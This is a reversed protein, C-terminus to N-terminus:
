LHRLSQLESTHEESRLLEERQQLPIVAQHATAKLLDHCHLMATRMADTQDVLGTEDLFSCLRGTYLLLPAAMEALNLVAHDRHIQAIRLTIKLTQHVAIQKQRFRPVLIALTTPFGANGVLHYIPGLPPDGQFQVIPRQGVADTEFPQREVFTVTALRFKQAFKRVALLVIHGLNGLVHKSPESFWLHCRPGIATLVLRTQARPRWRWSPQVLLQVPVRKQTILWPHLVPEVIALLTRANPFDLMHRQPGLVFVAQWALLQMQDDGPVHQQRAFHFVEDAVGRRIRRDLRQQQHCESPVLDLTAELILFTFQAQVMVLTSGVLSQDSVQNEGADAMEKEGPRDQLPPPSFGSHVTHWIWLAMAAWILETHSLPRIEVRSSSFSASSIVRVCASLALARLDCWFRVRCRSRCLPM